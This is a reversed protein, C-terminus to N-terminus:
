QLEYPYRAGYFLFYDDACTQRKYRRRTYRFVRRIIELDAADLYEEQQVIELARNYPLNRGTIEQSCSRLHCALPDGASTSVPQQQGITPIPLQPGPLPLQPGVSPPAIPQPGVVPLTQPPTAFFTPLSDPAQPRGDNSPRNTTPFFPSLALTTNNISFGPNIGGQFFNSPRPVYQEQDQQSWVTTLLISLCLHLLM